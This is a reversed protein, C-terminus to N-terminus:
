NDPKYAVPPKYGREEDDGQVDQREEHWAHQIAELIQENVNHGPEPEFDDLAEVLARLETFSVALPDLDTHTRALEYGIDDVNTWNLKDAM